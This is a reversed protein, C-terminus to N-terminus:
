QHDEAPETALFAREEPSIERCGPYSCRGGPMRFDHTHDAKGFPVTSNDVAPWGGDTYHAVISAEPKDLDLALGTKPNIPEKAAKAEEIMVLALLLYVIIDHFRGEIPESQVKGDKVWTEIASWHKDAVVGWVKRAEVGIRSERSKFYALVDDDGAYDAGKSDSLARIKAFEADILKNFDARNM